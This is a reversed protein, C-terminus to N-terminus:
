QRLTSSIKTGSSLFPLVSFSQSSLLDKLNMKTKAKREESDYVRKKLRKFVL